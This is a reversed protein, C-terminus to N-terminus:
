RIYPEVLYAVRDLLAREAEDVEHGREVSIGIPDVAVPHGLRAELLDKVRLRVEAPDDGRNVIRDIAELIGRESAADPM